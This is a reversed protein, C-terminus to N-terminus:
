TIEYFFCKRLDDFGSWRQNVPFAEISYISGISYVRKQGFSNTFFYKSEAKEFFLTLIGVSEKPFIVPCKIPSKYLARRQLSNPM